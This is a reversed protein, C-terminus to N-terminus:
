GCTGGLPSGSRAAAAAANVEDLCDPCIGHTAHEQVRAPVDGRLFDRPHVFEDGVALRGCWACRRILYDPNSQWQLLFRRLLESRRRAQRSSEGVDRAEGAVRRVERAAARAQEVLESFLADSPAPM